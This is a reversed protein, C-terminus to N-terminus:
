LHMLVWIEVEEEARWFQDRKTNKSAGKVTKKFSHDLKFRGGKAIEQEIGYNCFYSVWEFQGVPNIELFYFNDKHDVIMDISGSNIGTEKSLMILSEKIRKPLKFTM